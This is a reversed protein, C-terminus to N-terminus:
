SERIGGGLDSRGEFSAGQLRLEWPTNNKRKEDRPRKM